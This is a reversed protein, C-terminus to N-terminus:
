PPLVGAYYTQTATTPALRRKRIMAWEWGAYGFGAISVVCFLIAAPYAPSLYTTNIVSLSTADLYAILGIRSLAVLAACSAIVFMPELRRLGFCILGMLLFAIVAFKTLHPMIHRYLLSVDQLSRTIHRSRLQFPMPNTEDTRRLLDGPFPLWPIPTFLDTGVMQLFFSWGSGRGCDDITCSMPHEPLDLYDFSAVYRLATGFADIAPRIYGAKLSQFPPPLTMASGDCDIKGQACIANVEAAIQSYFRQAETASSYHGARAVADRLVWFFLGSRFEGDCPSIKYQDCGGQAFDYASQSDLYIRLEAVSPSL